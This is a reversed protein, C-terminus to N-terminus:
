GDCDWVLESVGKGRKESGYCCVIVRESWLGLSERGCFEREDGM